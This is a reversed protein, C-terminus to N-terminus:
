LIARFKSFILYILGSERVFSSKEVKQPSLSSFFGQAARDLFSPRRPSCHSFILTM